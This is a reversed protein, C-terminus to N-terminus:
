KKNIPFDVVKENSYSFSLLPFEPSKCKQNQHKLRIKSCTKVGKFLLQKKPTALMSNTNMTRVSIRKKAPQLFVEIKHFNFDLAIV